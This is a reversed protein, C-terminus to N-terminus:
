EACPNPRVNRHVRGETFFEAVEDQARQRRSQALVLQEKQYVAALDRNIAAGFEFLSRGLDLPAVVQSHRSFASM